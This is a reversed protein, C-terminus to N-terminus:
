MYEPCTNWEWCSGFITGSILYIGYRVTFILSLYKLALCPLSSFVIHRVRTAHQIDLTVSMCVCESYRVSLAKQVALTTVRIRLITINLSVNAQRTTIHTPHSYSINCQQTRRPMLLLWSNGSSKKIARAEGKCM